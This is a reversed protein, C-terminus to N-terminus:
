TNRQQRGRNQLFIFVPQYGNKFATKIIKKVYESPVFFFIVDATSITNFIIDRSISM